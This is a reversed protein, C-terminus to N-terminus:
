DPRRDKYFDAFSKSYKGFGQKFEDALVKFEEVTLNVSDNGLPPQFNNQGARSSHREEFGLSSMLNKDLFSGFVSAVEFPQSSSENYKFWMVDSGNRLGYYNKTMTYGEGTPATLEGSTLLDDLISIDEKIVIGALKQLRKAEAILEIKM